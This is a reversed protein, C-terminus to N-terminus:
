KIVVKKGNRIYVGKTTPKSSLQRGDLSYWKENSMEGNENSMLVNIGTPQDTVRLIGETNLLDSTDWYLGEPLTPLNLTVNSAQLSGVKWLQIKDGKSLSGKLTINVDGSIILTHEVEIFSRTITGKVKSISLDLHSATTRGTGTIVAKDILTGITVDKGDNHFTGTVTAKGMGYTNNWQLLPDYSGTKTNQFKITGEFQSWDGQMNSRVNTVNVTLTGAGTLKGTYNCRGDLTWSATKGEPVEINATNSSYSYINDPDKLTGGNLVITSPYQHRDSIEGGQITGQNVTLKGYSAKGNLVLTGLGNKTLEKGSGSIAGNLTLQTGSKVEFTGQETITIPQSTVITQSNALTGGQFTLQNSIGGLAGYEVGDNNALSSVILKGDEITTGGTFKNVNNITVIGTGKKTLSGDGIISGTGEVTFDKNSNDFTVSAPKVEGVVKITTNTAQDNFTVKDGTVFFDKNGGVVFNEKDALDWIGDTGGDWTVDTAERVAFVELKVSGNEYSLKFKKGSLGEVIIDEINGELADAKILNYTGPVLDSHQIQFIPADYQPGYQWDKKEITLKNATLQDATGDNNVDFVIRSGFGLMLTTTTLTGAKDKGGPYITANYDAKIGGKFQGGDSELTTHRNLWVPSKEMTGDFSLTGAWVETAGTYTETVKPLVLTGDGQKVLRMNGTFAGGTLTHTFYETTINNNDNHGQM